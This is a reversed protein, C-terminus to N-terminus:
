DSETRLWLWNYSDPNDVLGKAVPNEIIYSIKEYLEAEHRIIHDFNEDLWFSGKRGIINNIRNSSFSKISHLIKGITPCAELRDDEPVQLLRFVLHVHDPMVVAADLDIRKGNWFLIASLVEDRAQEPISMGKRCRFTVFYTAEKTHLHPLHRKQINLTSSKWPDVPRFNKKDVPQFGTGSDEADSDGPHKVSFDMM